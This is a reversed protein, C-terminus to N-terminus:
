RSVGAAVAAPVVSKPSRASLREVQTIALTLVVIAVGQHALGLSIPVQHLLTLIGLTAQVTMAVSICLACKLVASGARACDADVLHLIAVVWLTYAVMRHNFQV